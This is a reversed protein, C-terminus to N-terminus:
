VLLITPLTLHTYSVPFAELTVDGDSVRLFTKQEEFLIDRWLLLFYKTRESWDFTILCDEFRDPDKSSLHAFALDGIEIAKQSLEELGKSLLVIHATEQTESSYAETILHNARHEFEILLPDPLQDPAITPTVTSSHNDLNLTSNHGDM